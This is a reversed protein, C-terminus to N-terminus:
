TIENSPLTKFTRQFAYVLFSLYAAFSIMMAFQPLADRIGSTQPQDTREICDAKSALPKQRELYNNAAGELNQWDCDM